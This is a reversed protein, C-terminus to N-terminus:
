DPMEADNKFPLYKQLREFHIKQQENNKVIFDAVAEHFGEHPLYHASFVKVPRYGRGLKHFGQTGAEIYKLKHAIAYDIAQYYCTEFHLFKFNKDAGWNRGYLTEKGIFNLAAAVPRNQYDAFILLIKEPIKKAITQFFDLNLYPAGWKQQYTLCYFRYFDQWDQASIDNGSIQRFTINQANLSAREKKINKRKRSQLNQLFDDFNAFDQNVWHFQVDHRILFNAHKLAPLDDADPFNIHLSSFNNQACFESLASLLNQKAQKTESPNLNKRTLLKRAGVPTFPIASLLKPYYDGGARMWAEAWAHDFVYEGYSHAKLYLPMIILPTKDDLNQYLAFHCPQWGTDKCVCDTAELTQLFEYTLFPNEDTEFSSWCDKLEAINLFIKVLKPTILHSNM